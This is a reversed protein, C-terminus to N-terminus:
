AIGRDTFWGGVANSVAPWDACTIASGDPFTLILESTTLSKDVGFDYFEAPADLDAGERTPPYLRLTIM